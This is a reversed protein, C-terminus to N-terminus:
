RIPTVTLLLQMKRKSAPDDPSFLVSPQNLVISCEIGISKTERYAVLSAATRGM